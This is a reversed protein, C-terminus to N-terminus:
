SEETIKMTHFTLHEATKSDKQDTQKKTSYNLYLSPVRQHSRATEIVETQYAVPKPTLAILQDVQLKFDSRM